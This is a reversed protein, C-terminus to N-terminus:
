GQKAEQWIRAPYGALVFWFGVSKDYLDLVGDLIASFLVVKLAPRVNQVSPDASPEAQDQPLQAWPRSHVHGSLYRYATSGAPLYAAFLDTESMRAAGFGIVEGRKNHLIAIGNADARKYLHAIRKDYYPRNADSDAKRAEIVNDLRESLARSLRNSEHIAVDLLHCSHVLSEAAARVLTYLAFTPLPASKNTVVNWITRLHDEASLLRANALDYAERLGSKYAADIRSGPSPPNVVDGILRRSATLLQDLRATVSSLAAIEDEPMAIDSFRQSSSLM